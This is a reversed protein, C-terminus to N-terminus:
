GLLVQKIKAFEEPMKTPDAGNAICKSFQKSYAEQSEKQLHKAYEAIKLGSVTKEDPLIKEDGHKISLGGDMIGRIVAFLRGQKQITLFGTDLILKNEYNKSKAKKSLLLGTLYAAPISKIGFKWGQKVLERSNVGMSVHDGTQNYSVLQATISNGSFRVVLRDDGSMLLRLRKRYNTRGSAKRRYQVVPIKGKVM